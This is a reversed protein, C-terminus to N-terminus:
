DRGRNQRSILVPWNAPDHGRAYFQLTRKAKWRRESITADAQAWGEQAWWIEFDQKASLTM